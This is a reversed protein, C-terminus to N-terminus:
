ERGLNKSSRRNRAQESKTAWRINDPEYNGNNDIRDISCESPCPGLEEDLYAFFAIPDHWEECVEIGRLGYSKSPRWHCRDMMSWWRSYHRHECWRGDKYSPSQTGKPAARGRRTRSMSSKTEESHKWGLRSPPRIGSRRANESMKQRHSETRKYVGKPM